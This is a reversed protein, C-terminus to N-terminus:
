TTCKEWHLPQGKTISHEAAQGATLELVADASEAPTHQPVAGNSEPQLTAVDVVHKNKLWIIDLPIRTDKMWFSYTDASSFLFLMGTNATLNDRRSLGRSREAPTDAVEAHIVTGDLLTVDITTCTQKQSAFIGAVALLIILISATRLTSKM